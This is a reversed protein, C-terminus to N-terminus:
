HIRGSVGKQRDRWVSLLALGFFGIFGGMLLVAITLGVLRPIPVLSGAYLGITLYFAFWCLVAPLFYYWSRHLNYCTRIVLLSLVGLAPAALNVPTAEGGIWDM